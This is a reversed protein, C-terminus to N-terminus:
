RVAFSNSVEFDLQFREGKAIHKGGNDCYEANSSPSAGGGRRRQHLLSWLGPGDYATAASGIAKGCMTRSSFLSCFYIILGTM